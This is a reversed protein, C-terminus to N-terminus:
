TENRVKKWLRGFVESASSQVPEKNKNNTFTDRKLNNEVSVSESSTSDESQSRDSIDSDQNRDGAEVSLCEQEPSENTDAFYFM